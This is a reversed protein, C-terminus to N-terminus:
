WLTIRAARRSAVPPEAEGRGSAAPEGGPGQPEAGVEAEREPDLEAATRGARLGALEIVFVTPLDATSEVWIRGGHAQIALRCFYLGLGLNMRGHSMSAQGYKEFIAERLEAPIAPGSNGIRIQVLNENVVAARLAIRGGRPTYREANDLMNEIVRLLLDQDATVTGVQGTSIELALGRLRLQLTRHALASEFLASMEIPSRAPVLRNTELRNVDLLNALLRLGRDGAGKADVLAENLGEADPACDIGFDVSSRMVAILNKLDHVVLSTMEEKFRDLEVLRTMDRFVAVAGHRRGTEDELPRASVDLHLGGLQAPDPHRIVVKVDRTSEGQLARGLSAGPEDGACASLDAPRGLLREAAQNFLTFRGSDDVAVVGEGMSDLIAHTLQRERENEDHHRKLRLLSKVRVLLEVDDVPKTLFDDAGVDKGRIRSARDSLATVFIIPLFTLGLDNRIRHCVEFGSMRPMMVDLLVLDISRDSLAALAAEGDDVDVLDYGEGSLMAELLRRNAVEDDVVLIRGADRTM